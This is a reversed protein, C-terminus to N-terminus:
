LNQAILLTVFGVTAASVSGIGNKYFRELFLCLVAAGWGVFIASSYLNTVPPRGQLYMRQGDSEARAALEAQKEIEDFSPKFDNCSYSNSKGKGEQWGLLGLVDPNTV